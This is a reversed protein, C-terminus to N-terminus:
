PHLAIRKLSQHFVVAHTKFELRKRPRNNLRNQIMRIKEDTVTSMALKKPVYQRLLGNFNENSVREWSTFSRAFYAMSQRQQDIYAHGVFEKCNDFTLTKVRAALAQLKDVIASSFFESMKKEVKAMLAHGSKRKVMTM